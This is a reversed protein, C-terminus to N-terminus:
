ATTTFRTAPILIGSRASERSTTPMPGSWSRSSRVSSSSSAWNARGTSPLTTTRATSISRSTRTQRLGSTAPTTSPRDLKSSRYYAGATSALYPEIRSKSLLRLRASLGLEYRDEHISQDRTQSLTYTNSYAQGTASATGFYNRSDHSFAGCLGLNFGKSRVIRYNGSIYWWDLNVRGTGSLGFPTAIGSSGGRGMDSIVAGYDYMALLTLANSTSTAQYVAIKRQEFYRREALNNQPHDDVWLIRGVSGAAEGNIVERSFDGHARQYLAIAGLALVMALLTAGALVAPRRYWRRPASGGPAEGAPVTHVEAALRYGHGHVTKLAEGDEGLALRLRSVAKALSNEQVMRGPWGAELLRDKGVDNGAEDILAALIALCFRDLEVPRGAVRLRGRAADLEVRGFRRITDNM